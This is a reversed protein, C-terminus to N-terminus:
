KAAGPVAGERKLEGGGDLIEENTLEKLTAKGFQRLRSEAGRAEARLV